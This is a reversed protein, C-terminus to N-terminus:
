KNGGQVLEKLIDNMKMRVASVEVMNDESLQMVEIETLAMAFVFQEMIALFEPEDIYPKFFAHRINWDIQYEGNPMKSINLWNKKPDDTLLYLNFIYEQGDMEFSIKKGASGEIVIDNEKKSVANEEVSVSEADEKEQEGQLDKHEEEAYNQLQQKVPETNATINKIEANSIVGANSFTDLLTTTTEELSVKKGVRYVKAKKKYEHCVENLKEILLDELGSYWDFADKTQTVPWNDMNLEGFLRQYVFSNSKEFVEEPRYANEYGGIIVRGRRLLAFGAASTSATERLAIFGNVTLEEEKFPISFCVEEKWVKKTGDPLEETLIKPEEYYLNEGNYSITIDGTRLDTRYMGRLQDKTKGVQRGKITRNLNWITITTGHEKPNCEIEQVEIEEAKYKHLADVDVAAYYKVGSGLETSEVSWKTGFWCAATKLGMGFESRSFKKPPSDLIIARQFDNFSMGYANDRIIIKDGDIANKECVIDVNLGKWYKLGKLKLANDYYSQTSNDVFEAIATWPDYKINKYTAYVGTTPRINIKKGM